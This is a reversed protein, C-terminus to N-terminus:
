ELLLAALRANDRVVDEFNEKKSNLVELVRAEVTGHSVVDIFQVAGARQGSRLLRSVAQADTLLDWPRQLRIGTHCVDQLGDVGVALTGYTAVLVKVKGAQFRERATKRDRDNIGGHHVVAESKLKAGALDALGRSYTFVVLPEGDYEEVIELLANVKNSPGVMSGNEALAGSAIQLLRETKTLANAAILPADSTDFWVRLDRRMADYQRRQEPTLDVERTSYTPEEPLDPEVEALTRRCSYFDYIRHFEDKHETKLGYVVLGGFPNLASACYREIFKTKVPWVTPQVSRMLSWLDDPTSSIPTGTLGYRYDASGMIAWLARTQKAHPDSAQHIEDAIVVGWHRNLEKDVRENDKLAVSGYPALRSHRWVNPWTIIKVDADSTLAASRAKATGEAIVCSWEPRWQNVAVQWQYKTNSECIILVPLSAVAAIGEVTKGTGQANTNLFGGRDLMRGVDITQYPRLGPQENSYEASEREMEGLAWSGALDGVFEVEEFTNELMVLSAFTKSMMWRGAKPNYRAPLQRMRHILSGEVKIALQDDPSFEVSIV